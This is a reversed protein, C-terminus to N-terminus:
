ATGQHESHLRAKLQTNTYHRWNEMADSLRAVADVLEQTYKDNEETKVAVIFPMAPQLMMPISHLHHVVQKLLISAMPFPDIETKEPNTYPPNREQELIHEQALITAIYSCSSDLVAFTQAIKHIDAHQPMPRDHHLCERHYQALKEHAAKLHPLAEELPHPSTPSQENM